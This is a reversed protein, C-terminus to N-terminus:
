AHLADELKVLPWMDLATSRTANLVDIDRVLRAAEKFHKPFKPLSVCNGLTRPHDGHWHRKGDPAYKCDYGLLIVKTAGLHRALLLAGAGSNGGQEFDVRTAIPCNDTTRRKGTLKYGKFEAQGTKSRQWWKSDMAYLADAWPAITHTTNTVIVARNNGASRWQKVM